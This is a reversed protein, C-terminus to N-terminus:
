DNLTRVAHIKLTNRKTCEFFLVTFDRYKYVDFGMEDCEFVKHMLEVSESVKHETMFHVDATKAKYSKSLFEYLNM